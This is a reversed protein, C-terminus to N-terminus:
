KEGKNYNEIDLNGNINMEFFMKYNKMSSEKNLVKGQPNITKDIMVKHTCMLGKDNLKFVIGRLTDKYLIKGKYGDKLKEIFQKLLYNYNEKLLLPLETYRFQIHTFKRGEKELKYDIKFETKENIEDKIKDLVFRKLDSIRKYQTDEIGVLDRFKEITLKPFNVKYYDQLLEYMIVSYKSKLNKMIDFDLYAFTEPNSLTEEVKEPLKYSMIGENIEIEQLLRFCGMVETNKKLYNYEVRVNEIEKLEEFLRKNNTQSLGMIKQIDKVAIYYRKSMEQGDDLNKKSHYYLANLSKKHVSNLGKNSTAILSSSKKFLDNNDLEIKM